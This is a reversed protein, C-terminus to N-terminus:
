KKPLVARAQESEINEKTVFVAGSDVKAEVKGSKKIHNVMSQVGLYGMKFPDQLMVGTMSGAKVGDILEKSSDFGILKVKGLLQASQLARLMGFTASENPTFVGAISLSDGAKFRQILNESASQASERTAGAYQEASVVELGKEKAAELFGEERANTSASGESYRLMIVKSKPPVVKALEEGCVKGAAFNDTAIYSVPEIGKLGSDAIIVPIGAAQAEKVPATLANEDLPCLVIGDVKDQTFGEVVKTQESRDDEKLSSKWLLEVNSESAAKEAGEKMTLWFEHTAGKPIFAIRLKKGANTTQGATTSTQSENTSTSGSGNCGVLVALILALSCGQKLM